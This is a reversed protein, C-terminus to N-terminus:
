SCIPVYGWRLVTGIRVKTRKYNLAQLVKGVRMEEYRKVHKADFNLANVLVDSTLLFSRTRPLTDNFADKRNLWDEIASQWPDTIM